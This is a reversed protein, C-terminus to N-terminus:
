FQKSDNQALFFDLDESNGQTMSLIELVEFYGSNNQTGKTHPLGALTCALNALPQQVAKNHILCAFVSLLSLLLIPFSHSLLCKPIKM